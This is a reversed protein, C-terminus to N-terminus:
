LLYSVKGLKTARGESEECGPYLLYVTYVELSAKRPWILENARILEFVYAHEIYNEPSSM